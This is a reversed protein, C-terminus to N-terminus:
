DEKEVWDPFFDPERKSWRAATAAAETISQLLLRRRDPEINPMAAAACFAAPLWPRLTAGFLREYLFRYASFSDIYRQNLDYNSLDILPGMLIKINEASFNEPILEKINGIDVYAEQRSIIDRSEPLSRSWRLFLGECEKPDSAIELSLKIFRQERPTFSAFENMEAILPSAHASKPLPM